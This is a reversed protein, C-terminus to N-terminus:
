ILLATVVNGLFAFLWAVVITYTCCLIAWKWRGTENRIAIFTAICPFYLLIFIMFAVAAPLTLDQRLTEQLQADGVSGEEGAGAYMVGLSSVVLEKAAVGTILGVDMKWNFGLPEMVPAVAKGVMALYSQEKQDPADSHPFYGLAWIILSCLMITTAIKQLYQRGKEWTHRAIAKWTPMRYPPLEMVFPLDDEKIFRSLVLSSLIALVIGLLYIGLLALAPAQPFFAGVLLVFVPLRGSCSMFPIIAITIWRSKPSEIIRTAMIAPVNCGFGMVMPIFSKGHLGIKHMLKDMIFAARSMYGSDEMLSIFFYLILINPLFVLVSGAGAILGNVVLDKLWGDAMVAGM